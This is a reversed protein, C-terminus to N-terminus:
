NNGHLPEASPPETFAKGMMEGMAEVAAILAVKTMGTLRQLIESEPPAVGAVDIRVGKETLSIVVPITVSEIIMGPESVNSPNDNM